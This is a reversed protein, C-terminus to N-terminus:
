FLRWLLVSKYFLKYHNRQWDFPLLPRIHCGFIGTCNKRTYVIIKKTCQKTCWNTDFDEPSLSFMSMYNNLRCIDSLLNTVQNIKNHNINFNFSSVDDCGFSYQASSSIVHEVTYVYWMRSQVVFWQNSFLTTMTTWMTCLLNAITVYNSHRRNGQCYINGKFM